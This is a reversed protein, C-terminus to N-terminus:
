IPAETVRIFGILAQIAKLFDEIAPKKVFVGLVVGAFGDSPAELEVAEVDASFV